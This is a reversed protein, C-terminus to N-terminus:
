SATKQETDLDLIPLGSDSLLPIYFDTPETPKTASLGFVCTEEALQTACHNVEDIEGTEVRGQCKVGQLCNGTMSLIWYYQSAEHDCSFGTANGAYRDSPNLQYSGPLFEAGNTRDSDTM